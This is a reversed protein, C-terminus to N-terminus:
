ALISMSSLAIREVPSNCIIQKWGPESNMPDFQTIDVGSQVYQLWQPIHNCPVDATAFSLLQIACVYLLLISSFRVQITM